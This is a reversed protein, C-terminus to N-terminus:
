TRTREPQEARHQRLCSLCGTAGGARLQPPRTSAISASAALLWRDAGSLRAPGAAASACRAAPALTPLASAAADARAPRRVHNDCQHRQWWRRADRQVRLDAALAAAALSAAAFPAPNVPARATSTAGFSAGLLWARLATASFSAPSLAPASEAVAAAVTAPM